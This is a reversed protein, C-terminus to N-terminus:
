PIPHDPCAASLLRQYQRAAASGGARPTSPLSRRHSGCPCHVTVGHGGEIVRWGADIAACLLDGIEKYGKYHKRLAQKDLEKGAM